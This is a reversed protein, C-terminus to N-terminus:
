QKGLCVHFRLIRNSSHGQTHVVSRWLLLGLLSYVFSASSLRLLFEPIYSSVHVSLFLLICYWKDRMIVSYECTNKELKLLLVRNSTSHFVKM